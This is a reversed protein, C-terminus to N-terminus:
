EEFLHRSVNVTASLPLTTAVDACGIPAGLDRSSDLAGGSLM